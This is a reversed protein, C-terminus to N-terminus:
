LEGKGGYQINGGFQKRLADHFLQSMSVINFDTPKSAGKAGVARFEIMYQGQDGPPKVIIRLQLDSGSYKLKRAIGRTEKKEAVTM